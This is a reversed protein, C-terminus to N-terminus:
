SSNKHEVAKQATFYENVKATLEGGFSANSLLALALFGYKVKM